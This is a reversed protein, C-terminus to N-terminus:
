SSDDFFSCDSDGGIQLWTKDDLDGSEWRGRNLLYCKRQFLRSAKRVEETQAPGAAAVEESGNLDLSSNNSDSSSESKGSLSDTSTKKSKTTTHDLLGEEVNKPSPPDGKEATGVGVTYM